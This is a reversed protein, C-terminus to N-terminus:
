SHRSILDLGVTRALKILAMRKAPRSPGMQDQQVRSTHHKIASMCGQSTALLSASSNESRGGPVNWSSMCVLCPPSCSGISAGDSNEMFCPWITPYYSGFNAHNDVFINISSLGVPDPLLLPGLLAFLQTPRSSPASTRYFM